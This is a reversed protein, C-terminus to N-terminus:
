VQNIYHKYYYVRHLDDINGLYDSVGNETIYIEGPRYQQDAWVLCRRIAPPAVKLWSSASSVWSDPYETVTDSDVFYSVDDTGLDAEQPDPINLYKMRCFM